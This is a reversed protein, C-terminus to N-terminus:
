PHHVYLAYQRDRPISEYSSWLPGELGDFVTELLAVVRRDTPAVAFILTQGQPLAALRSATVQRTNWIEYRVNLNRFIITSDLVPTYVIEDSLYYLRSGPPFRSARDLADYFDLIGNRVQRNYAILHEGFYYIVQGLALIGVILGLLGYLAPQSLRGWKALQASHHLGVAVVLIMAPFLAVFRVTWDTSVVLSIGLIGLVIWLWLLAGAARFRFALYFLGLIFFPVLYWMLIGTYGGYYFQSSDPSYIMHFITYKLANDFHDALVRLPSETRLAELLYRARIGENTLRSALSLDSRLSTVYYPAAVLLAVLSMTLLNWVQARPRKLVLIAGLWACFVVLFLLRGGEYFYTALGLNVGALVYDSGSNRRLGRVLFALALTGFLPDAINNLALRSFHIHPPFVALLAAAILGTRREFLASGLLYLAPVTLTGVVVSMFRLGLFDPGLLAVWWRQMYAFTFPFAAIGNMPQLIPTDEVRWLHIVADEFHLEDIMIHVTGALRWTRLAFAILVIVVLLLSEVSSSTPAAVARPSGATGKVVFFIGAAFLLMQIHQSLHLHDFTLATNAATFVLLGGIGLVLLPKRLEQAPNRLNSVPPTMHAPRLLWVAVGLMFAAVLMWDLAITPITFPQGVQWRLSYGSLFAGAIAGAAVARGLRLRSTQIRKPSARLSLSRPRGAWLVVIAMAGSLLVGAIILWRFAPKRV